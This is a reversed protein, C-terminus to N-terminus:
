RSSARPAKGELTRRVLRRVPPLRVLLGVVAPRTRRPVARALRRWATRRADAAPWRRSEFSGVVAAEAPGAFRRFHPEILENIVDQAAQHQDGYYHRAYILVPNTNLEWLQLRGHHFAYDLRGYDVQAIRVLEGLEDAHPNTDLFRQQEALLEPEGLEPEKVSWDRAFLVHRAVIEGDFVFAGYKRIVGREDSTDLFEVALLDHVPHGLLLLSALARELEERNHLLGTLPGDHESARRLFVPYRVRELESLRLARFDNLGRKSLEDLLEYRLKVRRPHNLVRAGPAHGALEDALETAARHEEPSLRDLDTFLYTAAHVEDLRDLEEYPVVRVRDRLAPAWDQLYIGITEEAHAKRVFYVLM